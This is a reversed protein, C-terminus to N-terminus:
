LPAPLHGTPIWFHLPRISIHVSHLGKYVWVATNTKIRNCPSRHTWLVHYLLWGVNNFFFFISRQGSLHIGCWLAAYKKKKCDMRDIYASIEHDSLMIHERVALPNHLPLPPFISQLEAEFSLQWGTKHPFYLNCVKAINIYAYSFSKDLCTNNGNPPEFMWVQGHIRTM